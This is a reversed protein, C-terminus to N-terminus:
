PLLPLVIMWGGLLSMGAQKLFDMIADVITVLEIMCHAALPLFQIVRDGKFREGV